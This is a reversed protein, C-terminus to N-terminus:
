TLASELAKAIKRHGAASPHDGDAALLSTDNRTGSSGKFPTFIDVYTAARDKAAAAIQANEAKTLAVSNAVYGDGRAAAVDGDLFVNWYGTIEVTATRGDLLTNVKKLVEDLQPAQQRLTSQFCSLDPASCSGDAVSGTDFDNAGITIIVLDAAAIKRGVSAQNLQDLLGATTLGGEALNSVEATTGLRAAEARGALSVYSTCDCASAAPVSDGLGVVRYPGSHTPSASPTPTTTVSASVPSPAATPTTTTTTSSTTTSSRSRGLARAAQPGATLLLVAAVVLGALTYTAARRGRAAHAPM